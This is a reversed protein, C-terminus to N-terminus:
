QQEYEVGSFLKLQNYVAILDREYRLRQLQTNALDQEFQVVQFTTTRGQQFRNRENKFKKDQAAELKITLKLRRKLMEFRDTLIEYDRDVEYAKRKYALESATVETNYAKKYDNMSGFDLPTTFRVGVITWPRTGTWAQETAPSQYQNRGNISYNGYLELNPRNKEVGLIANAAALKQNAMAARVDERMQMKKPLSVDIIYSSDKGKTGELHVEGDSERISNFERQAVAVETLTDQYEIERAQLNAEAQLLDSQDVLNKRVKDANWDRLRKSREISQEQVILSMQAVYLRWYANEANMMLQKFNFLETFRQAEVQALQANETAKFESGLWNRWLSQTIEIQPAIDFFKPTQVLGGQTGNIETKYYNYSIAAKTGTRFNQQLGGRLTHRMTQTGQFAPALTPRQDDSYEGNLFFSTKFQLKAENKRKEKADASIKSAIIGGNKSQVEGLYEELTLAQAAPISVLLFLSAIKLTQFSM